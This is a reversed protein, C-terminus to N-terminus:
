YGVQGLWCGSHNLTGHNRPKQNFTIIDHLQGEPSRRGTKFRQHEEKGQVAIDKIDQRKRNSSPTGWGKHLPRIETQGGNWDGFVAAQIRRSSKPGSDTDFDKPTLRGIRIIDLLM